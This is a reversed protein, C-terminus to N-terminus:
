GEGARPLLSGKLLLPVTRAFVAAIFTTILVLLAITLGAAGPTHRLHMWQIAVTAVAAYSFTYAWFGPTFGLRLYLPVFRLQVLVMLITYGALASAVADTRGDSVAFYAIGGVAPPAVEIALTPVLPPPLMPNFILRNLVVSGLLIWCLVGIGFSLRGLGPMGADAATAAGLLGGAVTPLFYGPHLRERDVQEAMWQGTLWGGLLLTLVLFVVVVVRGATLEYRSLAAGLLMGTIPGLSSFPSLVPDRLDALIRRPGQRLYLALLAVWLAATLIQLVDPVTQPVRTTTVSAQWANALGACGFAIGFLNPTMRRYGRPRKVPQAVDAEVASM